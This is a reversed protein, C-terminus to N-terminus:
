FGLDFFGTIKEKPIVRFIKSMLGPYFATSYWSTKLGFVLSNNDAEFFNVNKIKDLLLYYRYWVSLIIKRM